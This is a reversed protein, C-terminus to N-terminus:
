LAFDGVDSEHGDDGFEGCFLFFCNVECDLVVVIGYWSADSEFFERRYAM